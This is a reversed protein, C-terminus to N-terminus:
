CIIWLHAWTKKEPELWQNKHTEHNKQNICGMLNLIVKYPDRGPFIITGIIAPQVKNRKYMLWGSTGKKVVQYFFRKCWKICLSDGMIQFRAEDKVVPAFLPNRKVM